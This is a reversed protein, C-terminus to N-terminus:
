QQGYQAWGQGENAYQQGMHQGASAWGQGQHAYQQGMQEGTHAWQQGVGAWDSGAWSADLETTNSSAAGTTSNPHQALFALSSVPIVPEPMVVSAPAVPVLANQGM